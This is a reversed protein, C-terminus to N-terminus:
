CGVFFLVDITLSTVETLLKDISKNLNNLSWALLVLFPEYFSFDDIATSVEDLLALLGLTLEFHSPKCSLGLKFEM